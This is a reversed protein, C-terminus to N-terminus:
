YHTNLKNIDQNILTKTTQNNAVIFVGKARSARAANALLSSKADTFRRFDPSEVGEKNGGYLSRINNCTFPRRRTCVRSTDGVASETM